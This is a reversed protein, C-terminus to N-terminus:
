CELVKGLTTTLSKQSHFRTIYAPHNMAVDCRGVSECFKRAVDGMAVIKTERPSSKIFGALRDRHDLPGEVNTWFFDKESVGLEKLSQTVSFSSGRYGVWPYDLKHM